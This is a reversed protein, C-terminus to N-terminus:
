KSFGKDNLRKRYKFSDENRENPCIKPSHNIISGLDKEKELKNM